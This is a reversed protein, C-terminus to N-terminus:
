FQYRLQMWYRRQPEPYGLTLQKSENFANILGFSFNIKRFALSHIMFNWQQWDPLEVQPSGDYFKHWASWRAELQFPGFFHSLGVSHQQEPSLRFPRGSLDDKTKLYNLGIDLQWHSLEWLFKLDAGWSRGDGRNRRSYVGPTTEYTEIFNDYQIAFVRADMNWRVGLGKAKKFNRKLGWELQQSSENELNPNGVYFPSNAFRDSLTPSRFGESFNLWSQWQRHNFYVGLTPLVQGSRSLFRGGFQTSFNPYFYWHALHAVEWQDQNQPSALFSANMEHYFYDVFTQGRWRPSWEALWQNQLVFTQQDNQDFQFSNYESDQKLWSLRSQLSHSEELFYEGSSSALAGRTSEHTNLPSQLSGPTQVVQNAWLAVYSVKGRAFRQNGEIIGRNLQGQNNQRLGSQNATNYPFEGDDNETFLSVQSHHKPSQIWPSVLHLSSYALSGSRWPLFSENTDSATLTAQSRKYDTSIFNVSGAMAQSGYLISAPGKIVLTESTMEKPLFIRPPGFGSSFNLPIDNYLTLVRGSQASGRISFTPSGQTRVQLGGNTNLVEDLQPQILRPPAILQTTPQDSSRPLSRESTAPMVWIPKLPQTEGHVGLVTCLLILLTM